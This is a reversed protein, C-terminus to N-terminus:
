HCILERLSFITSIGSKVTMENLWFVSFHILNITMNPLEEVTPYEFNGQM